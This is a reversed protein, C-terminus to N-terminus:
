NLSPDDPLNSLLKFKEGMNKLVARWMNNAETSFIYDSNAEVIIWAKEDCEIELQGFDWGSYGLFFKVEDEKIQKTDLLVKLQDFDGGWFVGEIVEISDQILDGRCHLFHLTDNQVPGGLFLQTKLDPFDQVAQNITLDLPRNLVFGFTGNENHECLFLVTSRFNDDAMYPESLLFCGTEPNQLQKQVTAFISCGIM